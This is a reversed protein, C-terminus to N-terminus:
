RVMVLERPTTVPWGETTVVWGVTTVECSDAAVNTLVAGPMGTPRFVVPRLKGAPVPAVLMDLEKPALRVELPAAAELVKAVDALLSDEASLEGVSLSDVVPLLLAVPLSALLELEPEPATSSRTAPVPNPRATKPATNAARKHIQAGLEKRKKITYCQPATFLTRRSPVM